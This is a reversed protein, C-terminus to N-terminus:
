SLPFALIAQGLHSILDNSISRKFFQSIGNRQHTGIAVLDIGKDISFNLIGQEVSEECYVHYQVDQMDHIEAFTKMHQIVKRQSEFDKATNVKLLHLEASFIKQLDKVLSLDFKKQEHFDSVLLIDEINRESRDCKLSIIPVPSQMVLNATHSGIFVKEVGYAGSTGMVVLDIDKKKIYSLIGEEIPGLRVSKSQIDKKDAAWQNMQEEQAELQENLKEYNEGDDMKLNGQYDFLANPPASVMSLLHIEVKTKQGIKHALAYAYDGLASFDTPILIKKM